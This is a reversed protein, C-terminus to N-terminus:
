GADDKMRFDISAPPPFDRRVGKRLASNIPVHEELSIRKEHYAFWLDTLTVEGERVTAFEESFVQEIGDLRGTEIAAKAWILRIRDNRKLEDSLGRELEIIADYRGLRSLMEAYEIALPAIKPGVEWAERLLDCAAELRGERDELVALNRLAWGSRKHELSKKWAERAGDSDFSEMRMVGLHYWSLWHDGKGEKVARELMVRWEGQVMYHGPDSDPSTEPLEGSDLLEIWPDQDPQLGWEDFILEPPVRDLDKSSAFLSRELSGWGSGHALMEHPPRSTVLSFDKDFSDLKSQALHADLASEAARWADGWNASHVKKPDTELLGIAETWSWQSNPPMPLCEMQTRALGAQIEFFPHEADALFEQWRRGGQNMGWFFMKRGRLHSTSAHVLGAGSEDLAAIWKRHKDPIRFYMEGAFPNNVPYTVDVGSISPLRQMQVRGSHNHNIVQDAPSLTRCGPQEAISINTWWYMPIARDHPNRLRVKLFLFPSGPPLHIDVQWPFCKVRDWEYIRLAPESRSGMIRAAFVPSCTLYYHGPHCTNWEIGGSFWANRLALNAPQFVPNKALLERQRTKDLISVVRGGVEPLVTVRLFENELVMARFRRPQRNRDYSDQMRYPLVRSGTRWGLHRRDQEPVSSDVSVASNADAARFMPLPNEPGLSAAPIEYPEIRLETM